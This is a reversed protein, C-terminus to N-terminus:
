KDDTCKDKGVFLKIITKNAVEIDNNISDVLDYTDKVPSPISSKIIFNSKKMSTEKIIHKRYIDWVKLTHEVTISGDNDLLIDVVDHKDEDIADPLNEFITNADRLAIANRLITASTLREVEECTIDMLNTTYKSDKKVLNTYRDSDTKKPVPSHITESPDELPTECLRDKCSIYIYVKDCLTSAKLATEFHGMHPPKFAGPFIGVVNSSSELLYKNIYKEYVQTYKDM